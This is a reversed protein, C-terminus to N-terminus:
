SCPIARQVAAAAAAAAAACRHVTPCRTTGNITLCSAALGSSCVRRQKVPEDKRSFIRALVYTHPGCRMVFSSSLGVTCRRPTGATSRFRSSPSARCKVVVARPSEPWKMILSDIGGCDSTIPAMSDSSLGNQKAPSHQAAFNRATATGSSRGRRGEREDREETGREETRREEGRNM